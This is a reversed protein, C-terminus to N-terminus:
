AAAFWTENSCCASGKFVGCAARTILEVGVCFAAVAVVGGGPPPLPVAAGGAWGEAGPIGVAELWWAPVVGFGGGRVVAAPDAGEADVEPWPGVVGAVSPLLGGGAGASCRGGASM